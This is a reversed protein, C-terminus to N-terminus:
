NRKEIWMCLLGILAGGLLAGGVCLLSIAISDDPKNEFLMSKFPKIIYLIGGILLLIASIGLMWKAFTIKEDDNEIWPVHHCFPCEQIGNPIDMGCHYCKM